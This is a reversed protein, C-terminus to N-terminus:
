GLLGRTINWRLRILYGSKSLNCQLLYGLAIVFTAGWKCVESLLMNKGSIKARLKQSVGINYTLRDFYDLTLKEPPIIHWMIANPCYWCEEGNSALREFLDSEEGGILKKGTRGLEVDFVGYKKLASHRIAMNGGGPIRGKPFIRAKNGLDLPNAIPLETYHSMWTPRETVYKPIIRGGASTANPHTEFLSIYAEAFEENIIEDDDIIAIIEGESHEIGCNRAWSLGQRVEFVVKINLAPHSAAFAEAQSQTQDTSNNNVVICEWEEAPVRQAAVSQLTVLLSEWRNYTAIVISIKKM